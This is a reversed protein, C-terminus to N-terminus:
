EHLSFNQASKLFAVEITKNKKLQRLSFFSLIFDRLEPVTYMTEARQGNGVTGSLSV